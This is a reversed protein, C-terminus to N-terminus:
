NRPYTLDVDWMSLRPNPLLFKEDTHMVAELPIYPFRWERIKIREERMSEEAKLLAVNSRERPNIGDPPICLRLVDNPLRGTEIQYVVLLGSKSKYSWRKSHAFFIAWNYGEATSVYGLNTTLNGLEPKKGEPWFTGHYVIKPIEM